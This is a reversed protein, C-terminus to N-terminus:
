GKGYRRKDRAAKERRTEELYEDSRQYESSRTNKKSKEKFRGYNEKQNIAKNLWNRWGLKWSGKRNTKLKRKGSWYLCFKKAEDELSLEKFDNEIDSIFFDDADKKEVENLRDLIELWNPVEDEWLKKQTM